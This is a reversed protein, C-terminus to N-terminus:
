GDQQSERSKDVLLARIEDRQKNKLDEMTVEAEFRRSAWQVLGERDIRGQAGGSPLFSLNTCARGDGSLRSRKRPLNRDGARIVLKLSKKM